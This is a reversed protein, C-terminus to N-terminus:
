RRKSKRWAKKIPDFDFADVNGFSKLYKLTLGNNRMIDLAMSPEDYDRILSGIVISFGQLFAELVKKRHHASVAKNLKTENPLGV